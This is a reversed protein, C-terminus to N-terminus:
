VKFGICLSYTNRVPSIVDKTEQFETPNNLMKWNRERERKENNQVQSGGNLNQAEKIKKASEKEKRFSNADSKEWIEM